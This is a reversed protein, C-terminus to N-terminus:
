LDTVTNLKRCTGPAGRPRTVFGQTAPRRQLRRLGLQRHGSAAPRPGGGLQLGRVGQEARAAFVAERVAERGAFVAMTLAFFHRDIILANKLIDLRRFLCCCAPKNM